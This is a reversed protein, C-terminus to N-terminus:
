GVALDAGVAQVLPGFEKLRECDILSSEGNEKQKASGSYRHSGSGYYSHLFDTKQARNFIFGELHAGLSDLRRVARAVISKQQGRGIVFIVGDVEQAVVAAEVSSLIPGVDVLVVDFEARAEDLVARIGSVPLANASISDRGATLVFLDPGMMRARDKISGDVLAERLGASQQAGLSRTIQRSILDADIVLTRLRAGAFSLGLSMALSTKGEGPLASTVLYSYSGDRLTQSRLTVRIQHVSKAADLHSKPGGGNLAPVIGLLPAKPNVRVETEESYLYKRDGILAFIAVLAAPFFLGAMGGAGAFELRRDREPTLPIEGTSNISLRGGLSDETQLVEMRHNLGVLQDRDSNEQRIIDGYKKLDAGCTVMEAYESNFLKTLNALDSRLQEPSKQVPVMAGNPGNAAAAPKSMFDGGTTSRFTRVQDGYSRVRENAQRLKEKAMIVDEHQDGFGQLKLDNLHDTMEARAEIYGRMTPDTLAIQEDSLIAPQQTSGGLYPNGGSDPTPSSSSATQDPAALALAARTDDIASQVKSVRAVAEDYFTKLDATGYKAIAENTQADLSDTESELNKQTEQLVGLRERELRKSQSEYLEVYANIVSNVAAAATGPNNDSVSIEIFESGPKTTVKLNSSFYAVPDKPIGGGVTKWVPDEVAMDTVRRSTILLSQSQMFTDFMQLPQNQDTEQLVPPLTYAIRVLGVSRYVPKTARWGAMAGAIGTFIGAVVVLKWRRRLAALVLAWGDM